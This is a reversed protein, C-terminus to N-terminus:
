QNKLIIADKEQKENETARMDEHAEVTDLNECVRTPAVVFKPLEVSAYLENFLSSELYRKQRSIGGRGDRSLCGAKKRHLEAAHVEVRVLLSAVAVPQIVIAARHYREVPANDSLARLEGERVYLDDGSRDVDFVHTRVARLATTAHLRGTRLAVVADLRGNSEGAAFEVDNLFEVARRRQKILHPVM